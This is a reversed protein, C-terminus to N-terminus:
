ALAYVTLRSGAVFKGATPAVSLSTLPAAAAACYQGAVTVAQFGAPTASIPIVGWTGHLTHDAKSVAYDHVLVDTCGYHDADANPDLARLCPIFALGATKTGTSDVYEYNAGTDGNFTVRGAATGATDGRLSALMWLHSYNQPIGSLTFAATDVSLTVDYLKTLGGGGAPAQSLGPFFSVDASGGAAVSSPPFARAFVKGDQTYYTVCPLFSGAASSGDYHAFIADPTLVDLAGLGVDYPAAETDARTLVQRAM